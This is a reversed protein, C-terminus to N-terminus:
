PMNLPLPASLPMGKCIPQQQDPNTGYCEPAAGERGSAIAPTKTDLFGPKDWHPYTTVDLMGWPLNEAAKSKRLDGVTLSNAREEIAQRFQAYGEPTGYSTKSGPLTTIRKYDALSLKVKEDKKPLFENLPTSDPVNDPPTKVEDFLYGDVLKSKAYAILLKEQIQPKNLAQPDKAMEELTIKVLAANYANLMQASGDPNLKLEVRQALTPGQYVRTTDQAMAVMTAVEAAAEKAPNYVMIYERSSTAKAVGIESLKQVRRQYAHTYEHYAFAQLAYSMRSRVTPNADLAQRYDQPPRLSVQRKQFDYEGPAGPPLSMDICTKEGSADFSPLIAKAIDSQMGGRVYDLLRGEDSFNRPGKQQICFDDDAMYKGLILLSKTYVIQSLPRYIGIYLRWCLM